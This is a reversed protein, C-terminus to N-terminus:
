NLLMCSNKWAAPPIGSTSDREGYINRQLFPAMLRLMLLLLLLLLLLPLLLLLMLLLLMLLLLLL